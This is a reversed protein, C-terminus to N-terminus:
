RWVDQKGVIGNWLIIFKQDSCLTYITGSNRLNIENLYIKDGVRLAAVDFIGDYGIQMLVNRIKSYFDQVDKEDTIQLYSSSGGSAPWIRIKKSIFWCCNKQSLAGVMVYESEFELFEQILLRRYGLKKLNKLYLLVQEKTDCKRIDSKKGEASVLPKVICPYLMNDSLHINKLDVVCSKAM